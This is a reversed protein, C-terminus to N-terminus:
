RGSGSIGAHGGLPPPLELVRGDIEGCDVRPRGVECPKQEDLERVDVAVVPPDDRDVQLDADSVPDRAQAHEVGEALAELDLRGIEDM